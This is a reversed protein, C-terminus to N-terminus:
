KPPPRQSPPPTSTRAGAADPRAVGPKSHRRQTSALKERVAALERMLRLTRDVDDDEPAPM